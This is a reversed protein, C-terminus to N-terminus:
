ARAECHRMQPVGRATGRAGSCHSIRRMSSRSGAADAPRVLGDARSRLLRLGNKQAGTSRSSGFMGIVSFGTSRRGRAFVRSPIDMRCAGSGNALKFWIEDYWVRARSWAWCRWCEHMSGGSHNAFIVWEIEQLGEYINDSLFKIAFGGALLKRVLSSQTETKTKTPM